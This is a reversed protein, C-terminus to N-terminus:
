FSRLEQQLRLRMAQPLRDFEGAEQRSRLSRAISRRADPDTGDAHLMAIDRLVMLRQMWPDDSSIEPRLDEIAENAIGLAEDAEGAATLWLVLSPDALRALMTGPHKERVDRLIEIRSEWIQELDDPSTLIGDAHTWELLWLSLLVQGDIGREKARIFSRLMAQLRTGAEAKWAREAEANAREVALLTRQEAAEKSLYHANHSQVAGVAAGTLATLALVSVIPRRRVFLGSRKLPGPRTWEIPRGALVRRLDEAIEFAASYRDAPDQATARRVIARLDHPVRHERLLRDVRKGAEASDGVHARIVDDAHKGAAPEGTLLWVAVSGLAYIDSSPTLGFGAGLLQEPACFALTFGGHPRSSGLSEVSSGFDVIVPTVGDRLVVNDPKIDGHVVGAAHIAAVGDAIEALMAASRRWPTARADHAMLSEGAVLESACYARSADQGADFVKAVNPHSVRRARRAEDILTHTADHDESSFVKLAVCSPNSTTSLLQDVAEYVSGGRGKGLFRVVRYRPRGDPGRAGVQEDTALAAVDALPRNLRPVGIIHNLRLCTTIAERYDPHELAIATLVGDPIGLSPSCVTSLLMEDLEDRPVESAQHTAAFEEFERIADGANGRREVALRRGSFEIGSAGRTDPAAHEHQPVRRM